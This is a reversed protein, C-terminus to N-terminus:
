LAAAEAKKLIDPCYELRADLRSTRYSVSVPSIVLYRDSLHVSM